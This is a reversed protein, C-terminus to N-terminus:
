TGFTTLPGSYGYHPAGFVQHDIAWLPWYVVVLAFHIRRCWDPMVERVPVYFFGDGGGEPWQSIAIAIGIQSLVIYSVVYVALVCAIILLWKRTRSHM